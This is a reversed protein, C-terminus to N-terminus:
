IGIRRRVASSNRMSGLARREGEAAGQQAARQMGAQFQEATVYDVENIREVSFRVDIPAAVAAGGTEGSTGGESSEPIVASGRAGRSYRAMSERMKSQPIIYEPEGGEGVLANTPGSVYGGDAYGTPIGGLAGLTASDAGMIDIPSGSSMTPLGVGLARMITGYLIMAIQKAIIKAAMDLFHEAVASMMDALAEQATKSGSVVAKFSNGFANGIATAGAAVQNQVDLLKELQLRMQHSPDVELAKALQEARKKEAEAVDEADKKRKENAKVIAETADQQDHLALTAELESRLQDESLGARNEVLNAIEIQREFQKQEEETLASSLLTQEKLARVRDESAAAIDALREAEKEEEPSPIKGKVVAAPPKAFYPAETQKLDAPLNAMPRKGMGKDFHAQAEAQLKGPDRIRDIIDAIGGLVTAAFAGVASIIPMLGKIADGIQGILRVVQPISKEGLAVLANDAINKFDKFAQAPGSMADKLGGAGEKEIRKLARMVIDSTIKGEAAYKRLNGQAVGTEQSIATLIGPVQESISNFEDGRLAGSGLAQALQTFANSAEVSTAGSLRAVTNFGVFTSEIDELTVGVPRLRAYIQSFQQNAETQSLGFTESAKTAAAQLDAIEGYAAGLRNLRRVSEIRGIAAQGAKFAAFGVVAKGVAGRLGGMRKGLRAANAEIDRISRISKRGMREFAAEVDRAAQQTKKFEQSVKKSRQEVKRLPNIAKVANIILEVTSVTV